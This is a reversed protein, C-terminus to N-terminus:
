EARNLMIRFVFGIDRAAFHVIEDFIRDGIEAEFHVLVDHRDLIEISLPWTTTSTISKGAVLFRGAWLNMNIPRGSFASFVGFPVCFHDILPNCIEFFGLLIITTYLALEFGNDETV